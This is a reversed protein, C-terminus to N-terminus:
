EHFQLDQERQRYRPRIQLQYQGLLSSSRKSLEAVSKPSVNPSESNIGASASVNGRWGQTPDDYIINIIGGGFSAAQTAGPDTIVEVRKISHPDITRLMAQIENTSWHTDRGNVFVKSLGKGTIYAGEETWSVLPVHKMLNNANSVDDALDNPIFIFKGGKRTTSPAKGHVTVEELETSALALTFELPESPAGALPHYLHNHGFAQISLLYPRSDQVGSLTFHGSEDTIAGDTYTSDPLALLVVSAGQLPQSDSSRVLGTVNAPLAYICCVFAFVLTLLRKM